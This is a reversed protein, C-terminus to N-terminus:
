ETKLARELAPTLHEVIVKVPVQWADAQNYNGAFIAVVLGLEPNVSLRQGGNGFGAMWVPPDGAPSLWWFYGYRIGDALTQRPTRSEALWTEPLIRRGEHLGGAAVMRGIRALDHVSLRLGSAASPEGDGGRRWEFNTIGLPEFLRERAYADIPMGVGDALLKAIIATAGGNYIWRSGPEAVLPRDLVFRYRDAAMEMAIESNAPDTYPLEENWDIGMTMTLAHGVTIARRAPDDALDAYDPFQCVLCAGLDPVRGEALAIGYLLSTVSKTVSRLDHLTDSGHRRMGLPRGWDEDEGDFHVEALVEGRLLVLVSHLGTLEGAAFSSKLSEEMAADRAHLPSILALALGAAVLSAMRWM